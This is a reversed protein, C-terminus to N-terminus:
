LKHPLQAEIWASSARAAVRSPHLILHLAKKARPDAKFRALLKRLAIEIAPKIHLNRWSTLEPPIV